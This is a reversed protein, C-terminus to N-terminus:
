FVTVYAYIVLRARCWNSPSDPLISREAGSFGRRLPVSTTTVPAGRFRRTRYPARPNSDWGRRWSERRRSARQGKPHDRPKAWSAESTASPVFGMRKRGCAHQSGQASCTPRLKLSQNGDEYRRPSPLGRMQVLRGAQIWYDRRCTNRIQFGYVRRAGTERFM